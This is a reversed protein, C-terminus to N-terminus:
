EFKNRLSSYIQIVVFSCLMLGFASVAGESNHSGVSTTSIWSFFWVPIAAVTRKRDMFPFLLGLLIVGSSAFYSLLVFGIVAFIVRTKGAKELIIKKNENLIVMLSIFLIVCVSIGPIAIDSQWYHFMPVGCLFYTSSASFAAWIAATGYSGRINYIFIFTIIASVWPLVLTTYKSSVGIGILFVLCSLTTIGCLTLAFPMFNTLNTNRKLDNM